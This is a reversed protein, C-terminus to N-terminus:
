SAVRFPMADKWLSILQQLNSKRYAAKLKEFLSTDFRFVDESPFGVTKNDDNGAVRVAGELFGLARLKVPENGFARVMVTQPMDPKGYKITSV